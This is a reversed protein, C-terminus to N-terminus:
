PAQNQFYERQGPYYDDWVPLPDGTISALLQDLYYEWGPGIDVAAAPALGHHVFSLETGQGLATLEVSLEWSGSSEITSIRLYHPARCDEIKVDSWTTVEEFGMQLKVTEGQAGTGKWRGIWRATNESETLWAWAAALEVPLSRTMVLDFGQDVARLLGTPLPSSM